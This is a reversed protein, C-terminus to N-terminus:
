QRAQSCASSCRDVGEDAHRRMLHNSRVRVPRTMCGARRRQGGRAEREPVRAIVADTVRNRVLGCLPADHLVVRAAAEFAPDRNSVTQVLERDGLLFVWVKRGAFGVCRFVDHAAPQHDWERSGYIRQDNRDGIGIRRDEFGKACCCGAQRCADHFPRGASFAGCQECRGVMRV